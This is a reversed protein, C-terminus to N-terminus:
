APHILRYEAPSVVRHMQQPQADDPLTPVARHVGRVRDHGRVPGARRARGGLEQRAEPARVWRGGAPRVRPAGAVRHVRRVLIEGVCSAGHLLASPVSRLAAPAVGVNRPVNAVLHPANAARHSTVDQRAAEALRPAITARHSTAVQRAAEALRPAITARPPVYAARAPVSLANRRDRRKVRHSTALRRVVRARRPVSAARHRVSAARHRVSATRPPDSAARRRDSAVRSTAARSRRKMARARPRTDLGPSARRPRLDSPLLRARHPRNSPRGRATAAGVRRDCRGSPPLM